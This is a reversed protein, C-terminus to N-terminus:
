TADISMTVKFDANNFTVDYAIFFPWGMVLKDSTYGYLESDAIAVTCQSNEVDTSSTTTFTYDGGPIVFLSDGVQVKLDYFVLESCKVDAYDYAVYDSGTDPKSSSWNVASNVTKIDDIMKKRLTSPMLIAMSSTSLIVETVSHGTYPWDGYQM